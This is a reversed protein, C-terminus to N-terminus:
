ITSILDYDFKFEYNHHKYFELVLEVIKKIDNFTINTKVKLDKIIDKINTQLTITYNHTVYGDSMILLDGSKSFEHQYDRYNIIADM